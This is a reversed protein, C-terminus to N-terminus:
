IGTLQAAWLILFQVLGIIFGLVGGLIEIHKLERASVTMIIEELREIPFSNVRAEVLTSLRFDAKLKEGFRGALDNILSPLERNVQEALADSIVRRISLPLFAPLRDMVRLRIATDASRVLDVSLEESRLYNLLEDFPLLEEEIVKGITRALEYRRKPVVGQITYGILPVYIPKYPRFILRVALWNTIWGILMGVLPLLVAQM